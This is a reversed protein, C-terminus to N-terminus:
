RIQGVTNDVYLINNILINEKLIHRCASRQLNLCADYELTIYALGKQSM